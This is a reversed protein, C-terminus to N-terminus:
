GAKSSVSRAKQEAPQLQKELGSARACCAAARFLGLLLRQVGQGGGLCPQGGSPIQGVMAGRRDLGLCPPLVPFVPFSPPSLSSEWSSNPHLSSGRLEPLPSPFSCPPLFRYRFRGQSWLPWNPLGTPAEAGISHPHLFFFRDGPRLWHVCQVVYSGWERVGGGPVAQSMTCENGESIVTVQGLKCSDPASEQDAKKWM